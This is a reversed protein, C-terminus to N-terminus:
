KAERINYWSQFEKFLAEGKLSKLCSGTECRRLDPCRKEFRKGYPCSAQFGGHEKGQPRYKQASSPGFISFSPVSTIGCLHLPLSDMSIVFDMCAMFNQLYPITQKEAVLSDEVFQLQLAQVFEKEKENGWSFVFFAKTLAQVRQLFVLMTDLSLQKNPWTSGPCVMVLPVDAPLKEQLFHRLREKEKFSLPLLVQSPTNCSFDEFFKQLPFLLFDRINLGLPIDFRQKTALLNPWESVTKRGFGVKQKGRALLTVFGSKINGQLDFVVDYEQERLSTVSDLLERWTEQKGWAKRWKRTDIFHLRDINPHGRLLGEFSKELAWHIRAQPCKKRLYGLAPFAHLIDGLSSTKVILIKM